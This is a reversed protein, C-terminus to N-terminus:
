IVIMRHLSLVYEPDASHIYRLVLTSLGSDLGTAINHYYRRVLGRLRYLNPETRENPPSAAARVMSLDAGQLPLDWKTKAVFPTKARTNKAPAYTTGKVGVGLDQYRAFIEQLPDGPPPADAPLVEVYERIGCFQGIQQASVM